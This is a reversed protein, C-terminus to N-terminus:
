VGTIVNQVNMNLEMGYINQNWKLRVFLVFLTSLWKRKDYVIKKLRTMIVYGKKECRNCALEFDSTTQQKKKGNYFNITTYKVM